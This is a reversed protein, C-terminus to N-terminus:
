TYKLFWVQGTATGFALTSGLPTSSQPRYQVPLWLVAETGNMFWEGNPSIHYDNIFASLRSEPTCDSAPIVTNKFFGPHDPYPAYRYTDPFECLISWNETERVWGESRKSLALLQTADHLYVLTRLSFVFAFPCNSVNFVSPDDDDNEIVWVCGSRADGLALRIRPGDAFMAVSDPTQDIYPLSFPHALGCRGTKVDHAFLTIEFSRGTGHGEVSSQGLLYLLKTGDNSFCMFDCGQVPITAELSWDDTNLIEIGSSTFMAIRPVVESVAFIGGEFHRIVGWTQADWVTIEYRESSFMIESNYGVALRKPRTLKGQGFSSIALRDWVKVTGDDSGSAITGQTSAFAVSSVIDGHSLALRPESPAKTDWLLLAGDVDGVVLETRSFVMASAVFSDPIEAEYIKQGSELNWLTITTLTAAALVRCDFSFAMCRTRSGEHAQLLSQCDGGPTEWDFIRIVLDQSTAFYRGNRSLAPKSALELELRSGDGVLPLNISHVVRGDRWDYRSAKNYDNVVCLLDEPESFVMGSNALYAPADDPPVGTDITRLLRHTKLDWIRIQRASSAALQGKAGFAIANIYEDPWEFQCLLQSPVPDWVQITGDNTLTALIGLASLAVVNIPRGDGEFTRFSPEHRLDDLSGQASWRSSRFSSFSQGLISDPPTFVLGAHYVQLPARQIGTGFQSVFM